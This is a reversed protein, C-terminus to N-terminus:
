AKKEFYPASLRALWMGVIMAAVFFIPSTQGSLLSTLAPGPCFGVLGWGIGFIASGIILSGTLKRSTPLHFKVDLLPSSRKKIWQYAISHVLLAGLMVFILSPDWDGFIDLFNIIKQPQTMGGVGLGIAFLFGVFFASYSQKKM